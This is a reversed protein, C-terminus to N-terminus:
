WDLTARVPFHDSPWNGNKSSRVIMSELGKLDPSAYIFDIRGRNTVGTFEHFTGSEEPPVSANLTKWIDAMGTARIAAHLPNDDVSNFDGTLIVPGQPKREAIRALILDTGKKRALESAHDLHTNFFHFTRKTERDYLKAWTCIRTVTNGWTCSNCIEPTDSLWFTGSEQIRFRDAKVLLAAYEGQDVGDERGVGIVAYGPLRDALDNMMPPLGEQIGVIDAADNKILEAAQDRRATWALEGKDGSTIYRLNYTLVRLPTAEALSSALIGTVVCALTKLSM